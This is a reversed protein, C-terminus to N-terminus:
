KYFESLGVIEIQENSKCKEIDKEDIKFVLIKGKKLYKRNVESSLIFDRQGKCISSLVNVKVNNDAVYIIKGRLYIPEYFDENSYGHNISFVLLVQLIILYRLYNM